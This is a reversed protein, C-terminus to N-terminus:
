RERAVTLASVALAGAAYLATACAVLTSGTTVVDDVLVIWRGCIGSAESASRLVFAGQVNSWRARRGLEYQPSTRRTRTLALRCPLSLRESVGAALLVAQDYGRQRARAAHVPVPVFIDGGMGAARWRAALADALPAALRKEGAYKLHHLAARIAGSFPACWELQALPMPMVAPLGLPVGPPLPLRAALALRCTACLATGEVGCGACAPPLALDLVAAGLRGTRRRTFGVPIAAPRTASANLRDIHAM